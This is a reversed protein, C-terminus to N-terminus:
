STPEIQRVDSTDLQTLLETVQRVEGGHALVAAPDVNTWPVLVFAREHARPHPLLLSEEDSSVDTGAAPDGYQILDLDLARPGWHVERTRGASAEVVHLRALMSAPSLRTRALAVANIFNDQDPGGVPATRYLASPRVAWVGPIDHLHEIAQSVTSVSDGLNSGVGIVVPVDRQRTATISVDEFPVGVPAQPKHLTVTVAEILGFEGLLTEAMEAVVTEILNRPEGEVISVVRAAVEAYNVTHGVADSRAAASTDVELTADVVFNQGACREADLVGHYGFARVGRLTIVEAVIRWAGYASRRRPARCTM